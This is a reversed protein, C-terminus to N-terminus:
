RLSRRSHLYTKDQLLCETSLLRLRHFQQRINQFPRGQEDCYSEDIKMVVDMGEAVEGFITRKEDLSVLDEGTTIYFQSANSNEGTGAMGLLGRKKHKIRPQIEDEFFRAQEGYM